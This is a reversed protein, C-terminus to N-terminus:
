STRGLLQSVAEAVIAVEQGTERLREAMAARASIDLRAGQGEAAAGAADELRATMLYFLKAILENTENPERDM